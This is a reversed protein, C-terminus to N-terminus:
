NLTRMIEDCHPWFTELSFYDLWIHDDKTPFFVEWFPKDRTLVRGLYATSGGPTKVTKFGLILNEDLMEMSFEENCVQGDFQGNTKYPYFLTVDAYM